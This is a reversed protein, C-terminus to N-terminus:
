LAHGLGPAPRLDPTLSPSTHPHCPSSLHPRTLLYLASTTFNTSVCREPRQARLPTPTRTGGEAGEGFDVKKRLLEMIELAREITRAASRKKQRICLRM